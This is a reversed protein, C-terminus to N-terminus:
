ARFQRGLMTARVTGAPLAGDQRTHLEGATDDHGVPLSAIQVGETATGTVQAFHVLDDWNAGGDFSQQLYVDLTDGAAAGAATVILQFSAFRFQARLTVLPGAGSGTFREAVALIQEEQVGVADAAPAVGAGM